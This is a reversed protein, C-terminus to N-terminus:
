PVAEGPQGGPVEAPDVLRVHHQDTHGPRPWAVFRCEPPGRFSCTPRVPREARMLARCLTPTHTTSRAVTCGKCPLNLHFCSPRAVAFGTGEDLPHVADPILHLVDRSGDREIRPVEPELELM